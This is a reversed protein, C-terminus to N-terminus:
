IAEWRNGAAKRIKGEKRLEQIARGIQEYLDRWADGDKTGDNGAFVNTIEGLKPLEAGIFNKRIGLTRGQIFEFVQRKLQTVEAEKKKVKFVDKRNSGHEGADSVLMTM